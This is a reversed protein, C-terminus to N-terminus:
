KLLSHCLFVLVGRCIKQLSGEGTYDLCVFNPNIRYAATEIETRTPWNHGPVKSNRMGFDDADDIAIVLSSSPCYQRIVELEALLPCPADAGRTRGIWTIGGSFHGDLWFFIRDKLSCLPFIQRQFVEHSKGLFIQQSPRTPCKAAVEKYLGPALEVTYYRKFIDSDIAKRFSQGLYTGSEIFVNCQMDKAIQLIQSAIAPM